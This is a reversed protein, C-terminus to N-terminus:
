FSYFSNSLFSMIRYKSFALSEVLFDSNTFLGLLTGPYLGAKRCMFLTILFLILLFVGNIIVDFFHGPIFM